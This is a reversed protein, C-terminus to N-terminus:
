KFCFKNLFFSFKQIKLIYSATIMNSFNQHTQIHYETYKRDSNMDLLIFTIWPVEEDCQEPEEVRLHEFGFVTPFVTVKWVVLM